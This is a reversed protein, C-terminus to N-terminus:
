RGGRSKCRGPSAICRGPSGLHGTAKAAGKNYTHIHTQVSRKLRTKTRLLETHAAGRNKEYRLHKLPPQTMWIRTKHGDRRTKKAWYAAKKRESDRVKFAAEQEVSWNATKAEKREPEKVKDAAEQETQSSTPAGLLLHGSYACWCRLHLSQTVLGLAQPSEPAPYV